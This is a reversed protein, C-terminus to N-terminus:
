KGYVVVAKDFRLDISKVRKKNIKAKTLLNQLTTLQFDADKELSFIALTGQNSLLRLEQLSEDQVKGLEFVEKPLSEIILQTRSKDVEDVKSLPTVPSLKYIHQQIFNSPSLEILKLIGFATGILVLLVLLIEFFLLTKRARTNPKKLEVRNTERKRFLRKRKNFM